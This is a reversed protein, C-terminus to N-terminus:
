GEFLAHGCAALSFDKRSFKSSYKPLVRKVIKLCAKIFKILKSSMVDM